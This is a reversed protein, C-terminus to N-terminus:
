KQCLYILSGTTVGTISFQVSHCSGDVCNEGERGFMVVIVFSLIFIVSLIHFTFSSSVVSKKSKYYIQLLVMLKKSFLIRKWTEFPHWNFSFFPYVFATSGHLAVVFRFGSVYRYGLILCLFTQSNRTRRPCYCTFWWSQLTKEYVFMSCYKPWHLM